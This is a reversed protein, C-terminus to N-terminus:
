ANRTTSLAWGLGSFDIPSLEAASPLARRPSAASSPPLRCHESGLRPEPLSLRTSRLPGFANPLECPHPLLFPLYALSQLNVKCGGFCSRVQKEQVHRM